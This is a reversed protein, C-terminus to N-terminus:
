EYPEVMLLLRDLDPFRRLLEPLVDDRLDLDKDLESESSDDGGASDEDRERLRRLFRPLDSLGCLLPGSPRADSAAPM